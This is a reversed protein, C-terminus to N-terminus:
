EVRVDGQRVSCFRAAVSGRMFRSCDEPLMDGKVDDVAGMLPSQINKQCLDRNRAGAASVVERFCSNVKETPRNSCESECPRLADNM